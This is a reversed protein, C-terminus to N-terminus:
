QSTWRDPIELLPPPKSNPLWADEHPHENKWLDLIGQAIWHNAEATPHMQDLFAKTKSLGFVRLIPAVDLTPVAYHEAVATQAKFYPDWTVEVDVIDLRHRNAPQLIIVEIGRTRAEELIVSLTHIYLDLPVRRVGTAYPERIWSVKTHPSAELGTDVTWLDPRLRQSLHLFIASNQIARLMRNSPSQLTNMWVDDQFHDFNNDSWLNGLVLVDPDLGWGIDELYDLTQLTSYGPTAGCLVDIDYGESRLAM